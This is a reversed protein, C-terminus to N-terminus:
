QTAAGASATVALYLPLLPDGAEANGNLTREEV